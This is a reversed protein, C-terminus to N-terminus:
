YTRWRGRFVSLYLLCLAAVIGPLPQGVSFGLVAVGAWLLPVIVTLAANVGNVLAGSSRQM